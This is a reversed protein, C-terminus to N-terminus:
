SVSQALDSKPRQPRKAFRYLESMSQRDFLLIAVLYVSFILVAAATLGFVGVPNHMAHLFVRGAIAAIVASICAGAITMYSSRFTLQLINRSMAIFVQLTVFMSAVMAVAVGEIGFFKGGIVIAPVVLVLNVASVKAMASAQGVSNLMWGFAGQISRMLSWVGLITLAWYASHWQDGYVVGILPGAAGCIVASVPATLFVTRRLSKLFPETIDAGESRMKSFTPFTVQAIPTTIAQFPLESLRYSMNYLGLQATGLMRGIVINDINQDFFALTGQALFGNSSRLLAKAEAREFRPRVREGAALMLAVVFVAMSAAQGVIMSWVGAGSVALCITISAYIISQAVQAFFGYKFALNRNVLPGFFWAPGTLMTVVSLGAIVATVKSDNLLAGILPSAALTLVGLALAVLCTLSLIIGRQREDLDRRVILTGGLGLDSVATLIGIGTYALAILGFDNPTLLRALVATSGFTIVKNTAFSLLTWPVGKM